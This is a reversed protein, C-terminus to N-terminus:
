QALYKMSATLHIDMLIVLLTTQSLLSLASILINQFLWQRAPWWSCSGVDWHLVESLLPCSKQSLMIYKSIMRCLKLMKFQVDGGGQHVILSLQWCCKWHDQRRRLDQVKQLVKWCRKRGFEQGSRTDAAHQHSRKSEKYFGSDGATWAHSPQRKFMPLAQSNPKWWRFSKMAAQEDTAMKRKHRTNKLEFIWDQLPPSSLVGPLLVKLDAQSLESAYEEFIDKTTKASPTYFLM